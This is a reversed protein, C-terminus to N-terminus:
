STDQRRCRTSSATSSKHWLVNGSFHDKIAVVGFNWGWYTADMMAVVPKPQLRACSENRFSRLARCVTSRSIGLLRAIDRTGQKGNRYLGLIDTKSPKKRGLFYRRCDKCRWRQVGNELGKKIVAKSGCFFCKKKEYSLSIGQPWHKCPISANKSIKKVSIGVKRARKKIRLKPFGNTKLKKQM